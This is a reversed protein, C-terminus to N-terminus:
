LLNAMKKSVINEVIINYLTNIERARHTIYLHSIMYQLILVNCEPIPNRSICDIADNYKYQVKKIRDNSYTCIHNHIPIWLENLDIGIYSIKNDINNDICYKELAMLDPSAGCGISLVNYHDMQPIFESKELLYLIESSYKYTYNCVYYNMLNSCDYDRKGNPYSNPFHIEELCSKCKGNERCSNPHNCNDCVCRNYNDKFEKDCYNIVDDILM